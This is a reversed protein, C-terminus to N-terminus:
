SQTNPDAAPKQTNPDAAPKKKQQKTIVEGCVHCQLKGDKNHYLIPHTCNM